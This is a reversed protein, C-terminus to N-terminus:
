PRWSSHLSPLRGAPVFNKAPRTVTRAAWIGFAVGFIAFAGTLVLAAKFYVPHGSTGAWINLPFILGAGIWLIISRRMVLNAAESMSGEM